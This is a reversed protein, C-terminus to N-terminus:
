FRSSNRPFVRSIIERENGTVDNGTIYSGTICSGTVDYGTICSGTACACAIVEPVVESCWRLYYISPAEISRGGRSIAYITTFGVVM